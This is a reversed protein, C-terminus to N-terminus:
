YVWLKNSRYITSHRIKLPNVQLVLKMITIFIWFRVSNVISYTSYNHIPKLNGTSVSSQGPNAMPYIKHLKAAYKITNVALKYVVKM